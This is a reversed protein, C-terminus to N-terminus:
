EKLRIRLLRAAARLEPLEATLPTPPEALRLKRTVRNQFLTVNTWSAELASWWLFGDAGENFVAIALRQTVSRDHTAVDAPRISRHALEKADTLDVLRSASSLTLRAMAQIRNGELEFDNATLTQNRYVQIAEAIASTASLAAYFVGSRQPIDHRGSGQRARPVYLPGGGKSGRSIRDWDFVRYLDL